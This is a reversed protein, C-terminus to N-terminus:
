ITKGEQFDKLSLGKTYQCHPLDKFKWRGGWELGLSEAIEGCSIYLMEDDWVPKGNRLPVFDFAVKWNHFSQGADAKTVIKGPLDRGQRYLEHQSEGDRYTSTIIVDIGAHGCRTIFAQCKTEVEPELDTLKRSNIM